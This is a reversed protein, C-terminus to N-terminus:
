KDVIMKIVYFFKEDLSFFTYIPNTDTKYINKQFVLKIEYKYFLDIDLEDTELCELFYIKENIDFFHNNYFYGLKFTKSSKNSEIIDNSTFKQIGIIDCININFRLGIQSKSNYYIDGGLAL